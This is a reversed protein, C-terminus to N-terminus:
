TDNDFGAIFGGQVQLGARQIRKVDEILNRSKNQKKGCEALSEENPTEIGIFIQDFGADVMMQMLQEDDAITISAATYFPIGVKNKQWKIIAPLLETKLYRKNAIFNDDVFFTSGRWGLNYFSDLEAIIQETTKTRPKSGFLPTVSCFECHYPCGRTFQISMSAYWRLDTLEWLPIPTKRVDAFESTTYIHRACGQKLDALFTSLTTPRRCFYLYLQCLEKNVSYDSHKYIM